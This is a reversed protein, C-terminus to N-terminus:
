FGIDPIKSWIKQNDDVKGQDENRCKM